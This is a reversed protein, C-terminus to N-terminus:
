KAVMYLTFRLNAVVLKSKVNEREFALQELASYPLAALVDTIFAKIKPYSTEVSFSINYHVVGEGQRQEDKYSVENIAIGRKKALAFLSQLSVTVDAATPAQAFFLDAPSTYHYSIEPTTSAIVPQKELQLLRQQAPLLIAVGYLVIAILLLWAFGALLSVKDILRSWWWQLKNM